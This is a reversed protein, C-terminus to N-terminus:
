GALTQLSYKKLFTICLFRFKVDKARIAMSKQVSSTKTSKELEM